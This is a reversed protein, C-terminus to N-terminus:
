YIFRVGLAIRFGELAPGNTGPSPGGNERVWKFDVYPAFKRRVEYRSRVGLELTRVGKDTALDADDMLLADLQFTPQLILRQTVFLDTQAELRVSPRGDDSVFGFLGVAFWYPALGMIGFTLYGQSVPEVEHRYGVVLDWFRRVYRGYVLTVEADSFAGGLREGETSWWVRDFDTGVWGDADWAGVTQGSSRSGDMDLRSHHFIANDQEQAAGASPATGLVGLVTLLGARRRV